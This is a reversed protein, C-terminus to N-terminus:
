SKRYNVVFCLNELSKPLSKKKIQHSTFSSNQNPSKWLGAVIGIWVKFNLGIIIDTGTHSLHIGFTTAREAVPCKLDQNDM